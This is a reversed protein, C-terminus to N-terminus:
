AGELRSRIEPYRQGLRDLFQDPPLPVSLTGDPTEVTLRWRARAAFVNNTILSPFPSNPGRVVEPHAIGGPIEQTYAL